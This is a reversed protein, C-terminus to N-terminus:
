ESASTVCVPHGLIIQSIRDSLCNMVEVVFDECILYGLGYPFQATLLGLPLVHQVYWM